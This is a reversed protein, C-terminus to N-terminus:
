SSPSRVRQDVTRLVLRFAAATMAAIALEALKGVVPIRTRFVSIWTIQAGHPTEAFDVRGLKHDVRPRSNRIRYEMRHPREFTTIEERLWAIRADVERIAGLGNPETHGSKTVVASRIGPVRALSTHDTFAEFVADIPANIIREVRVTTMDTEKRRSEAL